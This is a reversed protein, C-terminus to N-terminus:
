DAVARSAKKADWRSLDLDNRSGMSDASFESLNVIPSLIIAGCGDPCRFEPHRLLWEVREYGHYGCYLCVIEFQLFDLM